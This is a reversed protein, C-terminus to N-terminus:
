KFFLYLIFYIKFYYEAFAIYEPFKQLVPYDLLLASDNERKRHSPLLWGCCLRNVRGWWVVLSPVFVLLSERGYVSLANNNAAFDSLFRWKPLYCCSKPSMSNDRECELARQSGTGYAAVYHQQQPKQLPSISILM